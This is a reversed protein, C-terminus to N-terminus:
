FNYGMKKILAKDESINCGITTLMDGVIASNIGIEMAKEMTAKSLLTRGGAFRLYADPLIIRFIAITRLFDESSMAPQNELPTGKIPNLLNIPVSKVDLSKLTLALEIRERFGEGMGIIGGSCIDLGVDKASELTEIKDDTTHTTCLTSFYSPATELNCHYRTAGANLLDRMDVSSLLGLSVCISINSNERIHEIINCIKKVENKTLRKGSTVLSFRKVGQEENHKALKLCEEKSLIDYIEVVSNNHASQSCWKCNEPCKGSKANIISCTDFFNSAKTTTLEKALATLDSFSTSSLINYMEDLSIKNTNEILVNRIQNMTM